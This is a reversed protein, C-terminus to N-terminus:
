YEADLDESHNRNLMRKSFSASRHKKKNMKKYKPNDEVQVLILHFLCVRKIGRQM